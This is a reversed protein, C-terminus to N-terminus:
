MSRWASRAKLLASALWRGPPRRGFRSHTTYYLYASRHFAENALRRATRSSAGVSHSVAVSPMYRVEYGANRLRRCFDADEWFLFYREDFGGIRDFADRRILCFAGSVWDVAMSREGDAVMAPSIVNARALRSRPFLRTLLTSRGFLGTLMTPDGRASGQVSGDDNLIGPGIAAARDHRALEDRLAQVTGAHLMADPNVLLLEAASALRAGQNVATAFGVNIDNVFLRVHPAFRAGASESGDRSANDVVIAEWPMGGVHRALSDLCRALHDGSNFNVIISSIAASPM